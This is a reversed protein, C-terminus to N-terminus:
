GTSGLDHYDPPPSRSHPLAIGCASAYWEGILDENDGYIDATDWFTCGSEYVADLIQSILFTLWM